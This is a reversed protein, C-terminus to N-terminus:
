HIAETAYFVICSERCKQIKTETSMFFGRGGNFFLLAVFLLHRMHILM